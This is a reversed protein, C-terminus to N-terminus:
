LKEAELQLVLVEVLLLGLRLQLLGVVLLVEELL